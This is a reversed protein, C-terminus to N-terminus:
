EPGVAVRVTGAIATTSGRASVTIEGLEDLDADAVDSLGLLRTLMEIAAKPAVRASFAGRAGDGFPSPIADAVEELDAGDDTTVVLTGFVVGIRALPDGDRLVRYRDEGDDEITIGGTDVDIGLGGALSGLRSINKVRSLADTVSDPDDLESRMTFTGDLDTTITTTGTLKSVIEGTPDVRAFRRLANETDSIQKALEPDVGPLARRAFEVTHAFDRFALVVPVDDPAAPSPPTPGSAIPVDGDTLSEADTELRFPVVFGEDPDAGVALSVRRLADVWGVSRREDTAPLLLDADVSVRLAAATQGPLGRFQQRLGAPTLAGTLDDGTPGEGRRAREHLALAARLDTRSGAAVLLGGRLAFAGGTERTYTPFGRVEGDRTFLGNAAQRDFFDQLGAPDRAVTAVRAFGALTALDGSRAPKEPLGVVLPNGLLPLVELGADIGGLLKTLEREALASAPIQRALELGAALPGSSTDTELVAVAAADAPLVSLAERLPDAVAQSTSPAEDGGSLLTLTMIGLFAAVVVIPILMQTRPSM